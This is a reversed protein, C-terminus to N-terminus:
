ITPFEAIRLRTSGYPILEVVRAFEGPRPIALPQLLLADTVSFVVTAGGIGIALLLVAAVAFGPSHRLTRWAM